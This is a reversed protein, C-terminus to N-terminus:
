GLPYFVSHCFSFNSMVLLKEKAWLTKLLSTEWPRWFNDNHPLANFVCPLPSIAQLLCNRRNGCHRRSIQLVIQWKWWIQFQRRCVRETQFLKVNTMQCFTLLCIEDNTNDAFGKVNPWALSKDNSLLNVKEWIIFNLSKWVWLIQLRCNQIRHFHCFTKWFSLLCEPFLLFQENCAIEGKEVTNAFSKYQLCM